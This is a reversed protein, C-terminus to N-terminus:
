ENRYDKRNDKRNSLGNVRAEITALKEQIDKLDDKTIFNSDDNKSTEERVTYDLIKISPKGSSDSSKLYIIPADSDWLAVTANPGVLYSNAGTIGGQIWIIGNNIQSQQNQTTQYQPYYQPYYQQYGIPFGNNYVM